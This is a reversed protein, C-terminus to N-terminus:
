TRHASSTGHERSLTTCRHAKSLSLTPPFTSEGPWPPQPCWASCAAIVGAVLSLPHQALMHVHLVYVVVGTVKSRMCASTLMHLLRWRPHCSCPCAALATSSLYTSLGAVRLHPTVQIHGDAFLDEVLTRDARTMGAHHIAFGFPLLDRLESSKV